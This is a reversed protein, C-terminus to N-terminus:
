DSGLYTAAGTAVDVRVAHSKGCTVVLQGGELRLHRIVLRNGVEKLMETNALDVRWRQLGDKGLAVLNRGDREVRYIVGSLPDRLSVIADPYASLSAHPFTAPKPM